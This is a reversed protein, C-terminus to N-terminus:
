KKVWIQINGQGSVSANLRGNTVNQTGGNYLEEYTGNPLNDFTCGGLLFIAFLPILLCFFKISFNFFKKM